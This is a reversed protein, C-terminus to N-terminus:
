SVTLVSYTYALFRGCTIAAAWILLMIAATPKERGRLTSPEGPSKVTLVSALKVILILGFIILSIKLYFIPNTLSKAPYASLLLLGSFLSMAASSWLLPFFKVLNQLSVGPAVGLVRLAFACNFGALFGMGIAHLTLAIPFGWVSERVWLAISTQEIWAFFEM